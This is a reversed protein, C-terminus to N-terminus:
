MTVMAAGQHTNHLENCRSTRYGVNEPTVRCRVLMNEGALSSQTQKKLAHTALQVTEYVLRAIVAFAVSTNTGSVGFVQETAGSQLTREKQVKILGTKTSTM